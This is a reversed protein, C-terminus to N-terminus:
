KFGRVVSFDFTKQVLNKDARGTEHELVKMQWDEPNFGFETFSPLTSEYVSEAIEPQLNLFKSLIPV